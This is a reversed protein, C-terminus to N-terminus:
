GIHFHKYCTEVFKKVSHQERIEKQENNEFLHHRTQLATEINEMGYAVGPRANQEAAIEEITKGEEPVVISKCGCIAAYNSYMTYLDYSIFYEYQNFIASIDKHSMGDIKLAGKPHYNLNRKDGKRVMYCTGKRSSYNTQQYTEKMNETISLTGSIKYKFHEDIFKMNYCIFLENDGYNIKGTFAGPKYLKWRVVNKACLPNGDIIEPYIVISNEVDKRSAIELRYPSQFKEPKITYKIKYRLKQLFTRLTNIKTPNKTHWLKASHGMKNLISCLKHLVIIGGINEDYLPTFIVFSIKDKNNM